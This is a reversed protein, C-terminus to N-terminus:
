IYRYGLASVTAFADQYVKPIRTWLTDKGYKAATKSSLTPTETDWRHSLTIYQPRMPLDSIEVVRFARRLTRSQTDILRQPTYARQDQACLGHSELCKSLWQRITGLVRKDGTNRPIDHDWALDEIPSTGIQKCTLESLSSSKYRASIHCIYCGHQASASVKLATSANREPGEDRRKQRTPIEIVFWGSSLKRLVNENCERCLM